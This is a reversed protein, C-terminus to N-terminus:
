WSTRTLVGSELEVEWGPVCCDDAADYINRLESKNAIIRRDSIRDMLIDLLEKTEMGPNDIYAM